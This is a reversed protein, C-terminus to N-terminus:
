KKEGKDMAAKTMNIAAIIKAIIGYVDGESSRIDVLQGTETGQFYKVYELALKEAEEAPYNYSQILLKRIEAHMGASEMAKRIARDQAAVKEREAKLVSERYEIVSADLDFDAVTVRLLELGWRDLTSLIGNKEGDPFKEFLNYGARGQELGEEIKLGNLYSRLANEFLSIAAKRWNAIDYIAKRISERDDKVKLYVVAGNPAASGNKFDIKVPKEFLALTQEWVPVVARVQMIAPFIWKLGPWLVTMFSGFFEIVNREEPRVRKLGSFLFIAVVLFIIGSVVAEAVFFKVAMGLVFLGIILMLYGM